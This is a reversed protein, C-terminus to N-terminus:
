LLKGTTRFTDIGEPKKTRQEEPDRFDKVEMRKPRKDENGRALASTIGQTRQDKPLRWSWRNKTKKDTSGGTRVRDVSYRFDMLHIELSSIASGWDWNRCKMEEKPSKYIGLIPRCM